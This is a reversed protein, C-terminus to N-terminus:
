GRSVIARAIVAVAAVSSVSGIAVGVVVTTSIIVAMVTTVSAHGLEGFVFSISAGNKDLLEGSAQPGTLQFLEEFLDSGNIFSLDHFISDASSGLPVYDDALRKTHRKEHVALM